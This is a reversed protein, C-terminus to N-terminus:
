IVVEIIIVALGVGMGWRVGDGITVTLAMAGVIEVGLGFEVTDTVGWAVGVWLWIRPVVGFYAVAGGVEAEEVGRVITVVRICTVGLATGEGLEADSTVGLGIVVATLGGRKLGLSTAFAGM